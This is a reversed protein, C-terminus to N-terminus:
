AFAVVFDNVSKGGIFATNSIIEQIATDIESKISIYQAKLDVFPVKMMKFNKLWSLQTASM